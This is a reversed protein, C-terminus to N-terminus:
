FEGLHTQDKELAEQRSHADVHDIMQDYSVNSLDTGCKLCETKKMLNTM